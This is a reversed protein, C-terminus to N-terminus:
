TSVMIQFNVKITRYFHFSYCLLILIMSVAFLIM